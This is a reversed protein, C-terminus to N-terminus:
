PLSEETNFGTIVMVKDISTLNVAPLLKATKTRDYPNLTIEAVTGVTLGHPYISSEGGTIIKDGIEIDANEDLHIVSCYGLLSSTYDGSVLGTSGSREVYVGCASQSELITAVRCWTLGVECVSGIVGFENVVPMNIEVGNYSGKNLTFTTIYNGGSRGIVMADLLVFDPHDKKLSLYNKLWLNEDQAANAELENSAKEALQKKLEENEQNLREVSSFYKGYGNLGEATKTALYRFPTCVTVIANRILDTRGMSTLVFPVIVLILAVTLCTIFFRNLFLKIYIM